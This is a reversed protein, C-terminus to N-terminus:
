VEYKAVVSGSANLIRIVDGQINRVYYYPTNNYLFGYREGNEDFMYTILNSGKKEAVMTNGHLYYETSIGGVTKKTRISNENYDYSIATGNNTATTLERGGQWTFTMGDRYTLPNGSADYTITHGDYATLQDAWGTTNGYTYAVTTATGGSLPTITKSLINGNYSGYSYTTKTGAAANEESLLRGTLRSYTYARLTNGSNDAIKTINGRDDYTYVLADNTGFSERAVTHTTNTSTAGDLYTYTTNKATSTNIKKNTLRGFDDYTYTLRETGNFLVGNIQDETSNYRYSDTAIQVGDVFLATSSQQGESDYTYEMRMTEVGSDKAANATTIYCLLNGNIDHTYRTRTDNALDKQLVLQGRKDYAYQFQHGGIAKQTTQGQDNYWYSVSGGNGYTQSALQSQESTYAYTVLQNTLTGNGVDISTPRGLDDYGFAYRTADHDCRMGTIQGDSNYTYTEYVAKRM